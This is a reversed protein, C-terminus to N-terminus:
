FISKEYKGPVVSFSWTILGATHVSPWVQTLHPYTYRCHQVFAARCLPAVSPVRKNAPRIEIVIMM